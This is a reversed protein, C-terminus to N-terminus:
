MTTGKNATYLIPFLIPFLIALLMPFVIPFVIPLMPRAPVPAWAVEVKANGSCCCNAPCALKPLRNLALWVLANPWCLCCGGGCYAISLWSRLKRSSTWNTTNLNSYHIMLDTARVSPCELSPNSWKGKQLSCIQWSKRTEHIGHVSLPWCSLSHWLFCILPCSVIWHLMADKGQSKM